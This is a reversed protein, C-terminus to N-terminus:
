QATNTAPAASATASAYVLEIKQGDKLVLNGSEQNPQGDVTMVVTYGTREIDRGWVRFFDNLTYTRGARVAEIHIKGTADHTHVEAMCASISGINAPIQEKTGDVSIVLEPHFHLAINTHGNPLCAIDTDNWFALPKEGFLKSWSLLAVVAVLVAGGVLFTKNM